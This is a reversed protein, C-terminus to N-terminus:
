PAAQPVTQRASATAIVRLLEERTPGPTPKPTTPPRVAALARAREHVATNKALADVPDLQLGRRRLARFIEPDERAAPVVVSQIFGEGGDDPDWKPEGRYDRKHARDFETALRRRGAAEDGWQEEFANAQAIPDGRHTTLVDAITVAEGFALSVGWGYHNHTTCRADGIVHLGLALPRGDRM